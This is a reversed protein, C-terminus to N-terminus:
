DHTSLFEGVLELLQSKAIYNKRRVKTKHKLLFWKPLNTLKRAEDITLLLKHPLLFVNEFNATDLKESNSNGTKMSGSKIKELATNVKDMKERTFDSMDTSEDVYKADITEADFNEPRNNLTLAYDRVAAENFKVHKGTGKGGQRGLQVGLLTIQHSKDPMLEITHRDLTKENWGLIQAAKTKSIESM